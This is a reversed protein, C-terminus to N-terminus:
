GAAVQRSPSDDLPVTRPQFLERYFVVPYLLWMHWFSIGMVLLVSLHLCVAGAILYKRGINLLYLPFILIEFSVIVFSGIAFLVPYHALMKGTDTGLELAFIWATRGTMLWTTGAFILKSIGSQLYFTLIYCKCFQIFNKEAQKGTQGERRGLILVISLGAFFINLHTNYNYLGGPSDVSCFWNFLGFLVAICTVPIFAHRGSVISIMCLVIVTYKLLMFNKDALSWLWFDKHASWVASYPIFDGYPGFILLVATILCLSIRMM